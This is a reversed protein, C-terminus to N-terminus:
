STRLAPVGHQEGVCTGGCRPAGPLRRATNRASRSTRSVGAKCISPVRLAFLFQTHEHQLVAPARQVASWANGRPHHTTHAVLEHRYSRARDAQFRGGILRASVPPRRAGAPSISERHVAPRDTARQRKGPQEAVQEPSPEILTATLPPYRRAATSRSATSFSMSNRVSLTRDLHPVVLPFPSRAGLSSVRATTANGPTRTPRRISWGGRSGSKTSSAFQWRRPARTGPRTKPASPLRMRHQLPASRARPSNM